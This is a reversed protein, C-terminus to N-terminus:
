IIYYFEYLENRWITILFLAVSFVVFLVEILRRIRKDRIFGVANPVLVFIQAHIFYIAIRFLISSFTIEFVSIVSGFIMSYTMLSLRSNLLRRDNQRNAYVLRILVFIVAYIVLRLISGVISDKNEETYNMGFWTNFIDFVYTAMFSIIAIIAVVLFIVSPKLKANGFFFLIGFVIATQHFSTALLLVIIFPFVKRKKIFDVSWLCLSIAIAQRFGTMAFGYFGLTLFLIASVVVNGSYKYIYRFTFFCVIVPVIFLLFQGDSIVHALLWTFAYYGFDKGKSALFEGLPSTGAELYADYYVNVDYVEYPVTADRLGMQLVVALGCLVLYTITFAKNKSTANYIVSLFLFCSLVIICGIM